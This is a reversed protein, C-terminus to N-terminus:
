DGFNWIERLEVRASTETIEAVSATGPRISVEYAKTVLNLARVWSNGAVSFIVKGITTSTFTPFALRGLAIMGERPSVDPHLVEVADVMLRMLERLPYDKFSFYRKDTPMAAGRRKLLSLLAEVYMGKVAAEPPTESIWDELEAKDAAFQPGTSESVLPAIIDSVVDTMAPPLSHDNPYVSCCRRGMRVWTAIQGSYAARAFRREATLLVFGSRSQARGARPGSYPDRHRGPIAFGGQIADTQQQCEPWHVGFLFFASPWRDAPRDARLQAIRPELRSSRTRELVYRGAGAANAACFELATTLITFVVRHRTSASSCRINALEHFGPTLRRCVVRRSKGRCRRPQCRSRSGASPLKGFVAFSPRPPASSMPECVVSGLSEC